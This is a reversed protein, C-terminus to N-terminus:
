SAPYKPSQPLVSRTGQVVERLAARYAVWEAPVATGHEICRLVTVDSKRLADSASAKLQADKVQADTLPAISPGITLKGSSDFSFTSGPTRGLAALYDENSVTILDNPLVNASYNVTEPYFCGKSPSYRMM